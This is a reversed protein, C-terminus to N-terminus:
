RRFNKLRNNYFSFFFSSIMKNKISFNQVVHVQYSGVLEKLWKDVPNSTQIILLKIMDIIMEFRENKYDNIKLQQYARPLSLVHFINISYPAWTHASRGCFFFLLLLVSIGKFMQKRISLYFVKWNREFVNLVHQLKKIKKKKIQSFIYCKINSRFFVRM